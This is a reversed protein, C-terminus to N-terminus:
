SRCEKGVRREESRRLAAHDKRQAAQVIELTRKRLAADAAPDRKAVASDIAPMAESPHAAHVAALDWRGANANELAAALHARAQEAAAGIAIEQPTAPGATRQCAALSLLVALAIPILARLQKPVLM